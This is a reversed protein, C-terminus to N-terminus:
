AAWEWLGQHGKAPVPPDVPIIDDLLWAYRGPAFDGYPRQDDVVTLAADPRMVYLHGKGDEWEFTDACWPAPLDSGSSVIPVVDVLTCTAVIAGLPLPLWRGSVLWGGDNRYLRAPRPGDHNPHQYGRPDSPWAEWVGLTLRDSIPRTAAHIALPGRYSTSWSRTEITKVGLAVLTAWPQWLTLAKM